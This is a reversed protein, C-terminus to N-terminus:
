TCLPSIVSGKIKFRLTWRKRRHPSVALYSLSHHAAKWLGSLYKCRYTLVMESLSLHKLGKQLILDGFWFWSTAHHGSRTHSNQLFLITRFKATLLQSSHTAIYPLCFEKYSHCFTTQISEEGSLGQHQHLRSGPINFDMSDTTATSSSNFPSYWWSLTM